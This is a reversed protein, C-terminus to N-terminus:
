LEKGSYIRVSLLLSALWAGLALLYPIIPVLAPPMAALETYRNGAPNLYQILAPLVFPSIVITMMSAYKTKEYGFRLELPLIVARVLVVVLFAVGIPFLGLVQIYKPFLQASATYVASFGAFLLLDFVYKATVLMTRSYPVACLLATSKPYKAEAMSATGTLLLQVTLGTVLFLVLGFGPGMRATMFPPFLLTVLLMAPLYRKVLLWEKKVLHVMMM